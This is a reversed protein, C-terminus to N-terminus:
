EVGEIMSMDDLSSKFEGNPSKYEPTFRNDVLPKVNAQPAHCQSCNFRGQYLHNLKKFKAIKKDATNVVVEGDKVIKGDATLKTEPRFNTFHTPPIPTAGMSPAVDPMHCTLCQNNDKTIPLLGEVSHPIMPPADQFARKFRKSTGPAADSYKAPPPPVNDDLSASRYGIQSDDIKKAIDGQANAPQQSCGTLLLASLSVASLGIKTILRM